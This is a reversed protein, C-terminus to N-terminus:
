KKSRTWRKRHSGSDVSEVVVDTETGGQIRRQIYGGVEKDLQNLCEWSNEGKTRVWECDEKELVMGSWYSHIKAAFIPHLCDFLKTPIEEGNGLSSYGITNEEKSFKLRFLEIPPNSFKNADVEEVHIIGSCVRLYPSINKFEFKIRIM